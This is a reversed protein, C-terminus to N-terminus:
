PTKGPSLVILRERGAESNYQTPIPRDASKKSEQRLDARGQSARKIGDHRTGFPGFTSVLFANEAASNISVLHGGLAVAEAEAAVWSGSTSTLWNDWDGLARDKKFVPMDGRNYGGQLFIGGAALIDIFAAGNISMELLAGSWGGLKRFQRVTLTRVQSSYSFVPSYLSKDLLVAQREAIDASYPASNFGFSRAGCSRPVDARRLNM